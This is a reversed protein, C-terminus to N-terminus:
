EDCGGCSLVYITKAYIDLMKFFNEVSRRENKQHMTDEEGPFMAGFALTNNVAKAYTGGGIVLPEADNDGTEQRYVDMMTQVMPNDSAIYLPKIDGDKVIGIKSGELSKEIGAFVEDSTKTVPYRINLTLSALEETISAIGVNLTLESVEDRMQCGIREGAVDFGIHDNYFAIFDNLEENSFQLRGLFDMVISIANLGTSPKAGHAAVGKAEIVLSSGQKKASIDYGSEIVYQALSDKIHQYLGEDAAIVAKATAPVANSVAGGELKTLRLGEKTTQRTLKQALDFTLIGKEGNILPFDADPTFGLDPQGAIEVYKEMGTVGTEEDLGMILRINRKPKIGAEKMAKMVYFCALLPGKDDTVGRGYLYGDKIELKFPDTDWGTGEPVVDLHGVIALTEPQEINEDANFQIHGAYGDADFTDFGNSEGLNLMYEYADQVARGYRMLKGDASKVPDLSVSPFAILEGLTKLIDERYSELLEIYGM